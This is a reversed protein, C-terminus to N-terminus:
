NLSPLKSSTVGIVIDPGANLMAVASCEGDIFFDKTDVGPLDVCDRIIGTIFGRNSECHERWGEREIPIEMPGHQTQITITPSIHADSELEYTDYKETM